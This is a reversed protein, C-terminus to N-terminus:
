FLVGYCYRVFTRAALVTLPQLLTYTFYSWKSDWEEGLPQETPLNIKHMISIYQGMIHFVCVFCLKYGSTVHIDINPMSAYPFFIICVGSFLQHQFIYVVFLAMVAMFKMGLQAMFHELVKQWINKMVNLSFRLGVQIFLWMGLLTHFSIEYGNGFM